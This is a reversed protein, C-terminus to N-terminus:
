WRSRATRGLLLQKPKHDRCLFSPTPNGHMLVIPDGHGTEVHALRHGKVTTFQKPPLPMATTM